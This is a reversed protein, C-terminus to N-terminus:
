FVESRLSTNVIILWDSGVQHFLSGMILMKGISVDVPLNSLMKGTVTLSEDELVDYLKSSITDVM